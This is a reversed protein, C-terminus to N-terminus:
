EEAIYGPRVNLFPMSNRDSADQKAGQKEGRVGSGRVHPPSKLAKRDAMARSAAAAPTEPDTSSLANAPTV